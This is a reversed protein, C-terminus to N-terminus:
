IQVNDDKTTLLAKEKFRTVEKDIEMYKTLFERDSKIQADLDHFSSLAISIVSHSELKFWQSIELHSLDLHKKMLVFCMRRADSTNGRINKKFIDAKPVNFHFCVEKIIYDVVKKHYISAKKESDLENLVKVIKNVGYKKVARALKRMLSVVETANDSM